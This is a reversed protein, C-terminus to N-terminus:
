FGVQFKFAIVAAGHGSGSKLIHDGGQKAFAVDKSEPNEGGCGVGGWM